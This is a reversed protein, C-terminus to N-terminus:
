TGRERTVMKAGCNPCYATMEYAPPEKGCASCFPTYSGCAIDWHATREEGKASKEVFMVASIACELANIDKVYIDDHERDNDMLSKREEMLESLQKKIMNLNM